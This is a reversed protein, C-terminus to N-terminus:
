SDTKVLQTDNWKKPFSGFYKPFLTNYTLHDILTSLKPNRYFIYLLVWLILDSDKIPGDVAVIVKWLFHWLFTKCLYWQLFSLM